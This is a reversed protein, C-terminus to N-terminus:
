RISYTRMDIDDSGARRRMVPGSELDHIHVHWYLGDDRNTTLMEPLWSELEAIPVLYIADAGGCAFAAYGCRAAALRDLHRKHFGFWYESHTTKDYTRSVLCVVLVTDDTSTFETRSLRKLDLDLREAVLGLTQRRIESENLGRPKRSTPRTLIATSGANNEFPVTVSTQHPKKPWLLRRLVSDPNDVLPIALRQLEVFVEQSIPIDPM